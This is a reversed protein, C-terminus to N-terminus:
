ENKTFYNYLLNDPNHNQIDGGVLISSEYMMRLVDNPSITGVRILGKNILYQKVEQIPVQKLLHTKTTINNRITKNSILVSVEPQYISKGVKYTRRIIKKQKLYKLKNNLHTGNSKNMKDINKKIIMVERKHDAVNLSSSQPPPQILPPIHQNISQSINSPTNYRNRQTQNKMYERYTQLKGNRLCGWIPPPTLNYKTSLKINSTDNPQAINQSFNDPLESHIIPTTNSNSDYPSINLLNLSPRHKITTNTLRTIPKRMPSVNVDNNNQYKESISKLYNVSSNFVSNEDNLLQTNTDDNLLQTNTDNNIKTDFLNKYKLEQQDRIYKLLKTKTTKNNHNHNNKYKIDKGENKRKKTKNGGSVKFLEPNFSITKSETM